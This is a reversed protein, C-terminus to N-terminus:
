LTDVTGDLAVAQGSFLHEIHRFLDDPRIPKSLYGDMGAALCRDHDAKLAHATLAIIPVHGGSRQERKRIAATAELGDMEPMQVDMLVVDFHGRILSELAERGNAAIEVHHGQKELLRCVVKQNVINDEALLIHMPRGSALCPLERDPASVERHTVGLARVVAERLEARGIPKILYVAVGLERCRTIEGPQGASTLMIIPLGGLRRDQRIHEVFAFGDIEPMNVDVLVLPFPRGAAWERELQSLATRADGALTPRMSWSVFAEELIRLNTKNDDVVLVSLGQLDVAPASARERARGSRFPVNFYFTSGEGPVSELWLRGGMMEVLRRSITLGLGTGGYRRAVSTDAQTFADFIGRQKEPSIGIGTDQVSFRLWNTGEEGGESFVRVNV